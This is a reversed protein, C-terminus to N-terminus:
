RTKPSPVLYILDEGAINALGFAGIQSKGGDDVHDPGNCWLIGLGAPLLRPKPVAGGRGLGPGDDADDNERPWGIKEGEKSLRYHIPGPPRATPDAPLAELIRGRVLDDLATAPEGTRAQYLRLAVKLTACRLQCLLLPERDASWNPPALQSVPSIRDRSSFGPAFLRRLERRKREQEWPVRWAAAVWQAQTKETSGPVNAREEEPTYALYNPLWDEPSRLSNLASVYAVRMPEKQDDPRKLDHEKLAALAPELVDARDGLNELWRDVAQAMRAEVDFGIRAGRADGHNRFNRALALGSRLRRVFDADDGVQQAQLGRAALAAAMQVGVEAPKRPAEQSLDRPDEAMGVDVAAALDLQKPWDDDFLKDLWAAL